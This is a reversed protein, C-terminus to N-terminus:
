NHLDHTSSSSASRDGHKITDSTLEYTFRDTTFPAPGSSVAQSRNLVWLETVSASVDPSFDTTGSRRTRPKIVDNVYTTSGSPMTHHVESSTVQRTTRHSKATNSVDENIVTVAPTKRSYVTSTIGLPKHTSSYWITSVPASETNPCLSTIIDNGSNGSEADRKTWNSYRPEARIVLRVGQKKLYMQAEALGFAGQRGYCRWAPADWCDSLAVLRAHHPLGPSPDAWLCLSSQLHILRAGGMWAWQQAHDTTDCQGLIVAHKRTLLCLRRPNQMILFSSASTFHLLLFLIMSDM